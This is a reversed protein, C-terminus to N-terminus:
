ETFYVGPIWSKKIKLTKDLDNPIDRLFEFEHTGISFRSGSHLEASLQIVGDVRIGNTSELDQIECCAEKVRLEAHRLSITPDNIVINCEPHRGIVLTDKIEFISIIEGNVVHRLYAM